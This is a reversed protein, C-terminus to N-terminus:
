WQCQVRAVSGFPQEEHENRLTKEQQFHDKKKKKKIILSNVPFFPNGPREM